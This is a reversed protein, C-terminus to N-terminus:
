KARTSAAPRRNSRGRPRLWDFSLDGSTVHMSYFIAIEVDRGLAGTCRM